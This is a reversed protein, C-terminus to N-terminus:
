RLSPVLRRLHVDLRAEVLRALGGADREPHALPRLDRTEFGMQVPQLPVCAEGQARHAVGHEFAVAFSPRCPDSVTSWRSM